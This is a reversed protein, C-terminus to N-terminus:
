PDTVIVEHSTNPKGGNSGSGPASGKPIWVSCLGQFSPAVGMSHALFLSWAAKSNKVLSPTLSSGGLYQVKLVKYKLIYLKLFIYFDYQNMHINKEPSTSCREHCTITM